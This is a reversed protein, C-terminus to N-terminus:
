NRTHIRDFIPLFPLETNSFANGYKWPSIFANSSQQTNKENVVGM